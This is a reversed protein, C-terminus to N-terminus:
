EILNKYEFSLRHVPCPGLSHLAQRHIATGYGKNQAFGFGPYQVDLERM